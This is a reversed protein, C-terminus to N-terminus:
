DAMSHQLASTLALDDTIAVRGHKLSVIGQEELGRLARNVTQRSLGALHGLEEQTLYIRRANRWFLPSLYLAVRFEPSRLRGAEIIAMAQGLRMNLHNTLCHNFPLSSERLANMQALPLCLLQTPRLAVVEYRRIEEKLATGEGFWEGEPVGIFASSRRQPSASRLMVLGSLVSWWGEVPEGSALVRDGKRAERLPMSHLLSAQAASDLSRFWPLASM